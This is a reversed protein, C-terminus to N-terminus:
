GARLEPQDHDAGAEAALQNHIKGVEGIMLVRVPHPLSLIEDLSWHLYYALYAVEEWLRDAAYRV